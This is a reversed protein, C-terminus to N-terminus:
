HRRISSSTQRLRKKKLQSIDQMLSDFSLAGNSLKVLAIMNLSNPTNVGQLWAYIVSRNVGLTSALKQVGGYTTIWESFHM